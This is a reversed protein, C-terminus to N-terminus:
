PVTVSWTSTNGAEFGDEFLTAFDEVCGPHHADIFGSINAIVTPHFAAANQVGCAGIHCYSMVTGQGAVPCSTPGVYCGSEGSYCTDVRPNYCHTHASGANHGLEHGVLNADFFTGFNGTFIQNVSYGGGSSLKECYGDLWAFGSASNPLASKGSLLAAFVRPVSAQNISWWTGFENLQAQSAGSGGTWPDDNYTPVLDLDLRFTTDGRLLRLSLDREYFVNMALFLEDIWITADSTNNAFKKHHFENDTDIAVVAQYSPTGFFAAAPGKTDYFVMAEGAPLEAGGCQFQAGAHNSDSEVPVLVGGAGRAEVPGSAGAVLAWIRGDPQLLLAARTGDAGTGLFMAAEARPLERREGGAVVWTRAGPAWLDVRTLATPAPSGALEALGAVAVAEGPLAQRLARTDVAVGALLPSAFWCSLVLARIRM